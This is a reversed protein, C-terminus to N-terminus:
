SLLNPYRWVWQIGLYLAKMDMPSVNERLEAIKWLYTYPLCLMNWAIIFPDIAEHIFTCLVCVPIVDDVWGNWRRM